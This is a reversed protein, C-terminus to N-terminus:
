RTRSAERCTASRPRRRRGRASRRIAARRSPPPRPSSDALLTQPTLVLRFDPEQRARPDPLPPLLTEATDTAAGEGDGPRASAGPAPEPGGVFFRVKKPRPAAAADDVRRKLASIQSALGDLLAQMAVKKAVTVYGNEYAELEIRAGAPLLRRVAASRLWAPVAGLRDVVRSVLFSRSESSLAAVAPSGDFVSLPLADVLDPSLRALRAISASAGRFSSGAHEAVYNLAPESRRALRDLQAPADRFASPTKWALRVLGADSLRALMLARAEDRGM